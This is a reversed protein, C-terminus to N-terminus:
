LAVSRVDRPWVNSIGPSVRGVTSEEAVLWNVRSIECESAGESSLLNLAPWLPIILARSPISADSVGAKGSTGLCFPYTEVGSWKKSVVVGTGAGCYMVVLKIVVAELPWSSTTNKLKRTAFIGKESSRNLLLERSYWARSCRNVCSTLPHQECNEAGEM